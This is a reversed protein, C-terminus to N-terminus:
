GRSIENRHKHNVNNTTGKSNSTTHAEKLAHIMSKISRIASGYTLPDVSAKMTYFKEVEKKLESNEAFEFETTSRSILRTNKIPNSNVFLFAALYFDTTVYTEM